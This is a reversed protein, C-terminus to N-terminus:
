FVSKRRNSLGLGTRSNKHGSKGKGHSSFSILLNSSKLLGELKLYVKKTWPHGRGYATQYILWATRYDKMALAMKDEEREAHLDAIKLKLDAYELHYKGVFQEELQAARQFERLAPIKRGKSALKDGNREKDVSEYLGMHYPKLERKQELIVESMWGLAHQTMYHKRGYVVDRMRWVRRFAVLADDPQNNMQFGVGMWVYRGATDYRTGGQKRFESRDRHFQKVSRDVRSANKDATLLDQGSFGQELYWPSKSQKNRAKNNALDMKELTTVAYPHDEGFAEQYIQLAKTYYKSASSDDDNDDQLAVIADAIKAYLDAIDVHGEGASASEVEVAKTYEELAKEHDRREAAKDGKMEHDIAQTLQEQYAAVDKDDKGAKRLVWCIYDKAGQLKNAKDPKVTAIRMTRRLAILADHYDGKGHLACGMSFYTRSTQPHYKGLLSERLVLAKAFEQLANNYEGANWQDCGKDFFYQALLIQKKRSKAM